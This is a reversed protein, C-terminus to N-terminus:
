GFFAWAVLAAVVVLCVAVLVYDLPSRRMQRHPDLGM